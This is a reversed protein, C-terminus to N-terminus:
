KILLLKLIYCANKDNRHYYKHVLFLLQYKHLEPHPLTNYNKYLNMIRYQLTENQVIHLIKNNLIILKNINNRSTNGYVEIGYLLQSHVFAFYVM